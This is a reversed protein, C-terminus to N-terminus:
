PRLEHTIEAGRSASCELEDLAVFVRREYAEYGLEGRLREFGRAGMVVGEDAVVRTVARALADVDRAPVVIGSLEHEVVEPAGGARAAVCPLAHAMAELYVLGFGEGASPLVFARAGALLASLRSDDVQGRFRADVGLRAALAELRPRDAGDGVVVLPFRSQGDIRALAEITLDVGKYTEQPHLRTVTILYDGSAATRAPAVAPSFRPSLANLLVRVKTDPAGHFTTLYWATNCSVAWLERARALAARRPRSLARWVEIGHAIVVSGVRSPFALSLTALHPHAFIVLRRAPSVNCTALLRTALVARHGRYGVYRHPEPVLTRDRSEPADNLAHVTFRVGRSEAWRGVAHALTASMRAIGGPSSFMDPTVLEIAELETRGVTM